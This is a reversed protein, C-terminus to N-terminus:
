EDDEVAIDILEYGGTTKLATILYCIYDPIDTADNYMSTWGNTKYTGIASTEVTNDSVMAAIPYSLFSSIDLEKNRSELKRWYVIFSASSSNSVFGNRIKM